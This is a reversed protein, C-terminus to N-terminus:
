KRKQFLKRVRVWFSECRVMNMSHLQTLENEQEHGYDPCQSNKYRSKLQDCYEKLNQFEHSKEFESWQDYPVSFRVEQCYPVNDSYFTNIEMEGFDPAFFRGM